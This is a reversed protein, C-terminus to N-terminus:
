NSPEKGIKTPNKAPQCKAHIINLTADTNGGCYSVRYDNEALISRKSWSASVIKVNILLHLFGDQHDIMDDFNLNTSLTQCENPNFMFWESGVGNVVMARVLWAMWVLELTWANTWIVRIVVKQHFLIVILEGVIAEARPIKHCTAASTCDSKAMLCKEQWWRRCGFIAFVTPREQSTQWWEEWWNNINTRDKKHCQHTVVAVSQVINCM